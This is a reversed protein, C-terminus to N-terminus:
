LIEEQGNTTEKSMAVLHPRIYGIWEDVVNQMDRVLDSNIASELDSIVGELAEISDDM